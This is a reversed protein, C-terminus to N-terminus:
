IGAAHANGLVLSLGQAPEMVCGPPMKRRGLEHQTNSVFGSVAHPLIEGHRSM